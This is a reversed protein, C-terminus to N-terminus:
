DNIIFNKVFEIQHKEKKSGDDSYNIDKTVYLLKISENGITYYFYFDYYVTFYCDITNNVKVPFHETIDKLHTEIGLTAKIFHDYDKYEYTKGDIREANLRDYYLQNDQYYALHTDFSEKYLESKIIEELEKHKM